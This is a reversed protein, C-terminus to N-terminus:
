GSAAAKYKKQAKKECIRKPNRFPNDRVGLSVTHIQTLSHNAFYMYFYLNPQIDMDNFFYSYRNRDSTDM